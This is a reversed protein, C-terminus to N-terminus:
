KMALSFAPMKPQLKALRPEFIKIEASQITNGLHTIEAYTKKKKPRGKLLLNYENRWTDTLLFHKNEFEIKTFIHTHGLVFLHRNPHARRLKKLRSPLFREDSIFDFGFRVIHKFFDRFHVHYTPDNLHLLRNFAIRFLNLWKLKKIARDYEPYQEVVKFKPYLQEEKPFKRKFPTLYAFVIQSGVPLNLIREGKFEVFPKTTDHTFFPDILNGHEIHLAGDNLEFDFHVRDENGFWKKLYQQLKPWVLDFDHNGIIFHIHNQSKRLFDGLADFIRGHVKFIQELKWLSMDETIYRPHEGKYDMKLFDLTDGNLVLHTKDSDERNKLFTLFKILEDDDSFDDMIDGKGMEIDSVVFYNKNM